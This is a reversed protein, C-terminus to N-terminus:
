PFKYRYGRKGLIAMREKGSRRGVTTLRMTGWRRPKPLWLGRRGGTFRYIARHVVWASRIFWRPPLWPTREREVTVRRADTARKIFDM